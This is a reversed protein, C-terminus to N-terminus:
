TCSIGINIKSVYNYKIRMDHYVNSWIVWFIKFTVKWNRYNWRQLTWFFPSDQNRSKSTQSNCCAGKSKFLKRRRQMTSLIIILDYMFIGLLLFLSKVYKINRIFIKWLQLQANNFIHLTADSYSSPWKTLYWGQLSTTFNICESFAVSNQSIKM